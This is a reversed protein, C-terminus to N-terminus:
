LFWIMHEVLLHGLSICLTCKQRLRTKEMWENSRGVKKNNGPQKNKTHEATKQSPKTTKMEVQNNYPSSTIIESKAYGGKRTPLRHKEDDPFLWIKKV